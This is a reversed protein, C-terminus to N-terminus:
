KREKEQTTNITLPTSLTSLQDYLLPPRTFIHRSYRTPLLRSVLHIIITSVWLNTPYTGDDVGATSLRVCFDGREVWQSNVINGCNPM